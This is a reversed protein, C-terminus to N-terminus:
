FHVDVKFFFVSGIFVINWVSICFLKTKLSLELYFHLFFFIVGLLFLKIIFFREGSERKNEIETSSCLISLLFFYVLFFFSCWSTLFRLSSMEWFIYSYCFGEVLCRWKITSSKKRSNSPADQILKNQCTAETTLKKKTFDWLVSFIVFSAFCIFILKMLSRCRSKLSPVLGFTLRHLLDVVRYKTNLFLFLPPFLANMLPPFTFSHYIFLGGLHAYFDVFPGFLFL